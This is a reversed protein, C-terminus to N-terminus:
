RSVPYNLIDQRLNSSHKNNVLIGRKMVLIKFCFSTERQLEFTCTFKTDILSQKQIIFLFIWLFFIDQPNTGARPASQPACKKLFSRVRGLPFQLRGSLIRLQGKSHNLLLYNYNVQSSISMTSSLFFLLAVCLGLRPFLMVHLFFEVPINLRERSQSLTRSLNM